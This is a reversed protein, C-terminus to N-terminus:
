QISILARIAELTGPGIGDVLLLQEVSTLGGREQRFAIIRTAKVEGIGPLSMLAEKSATNVNIADASEDIPYKSSAGIQSQDGQSAIGSAPSDGGDGGSNSEPEVVRLPPVVIRTGDKVFAALNVEHAAASETLGGAAEVANILRDGKNLRFLGPQNVEGVIQVLVPGPTPLLIEVYHSNGHSRGWM